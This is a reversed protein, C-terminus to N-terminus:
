WNESWFPIKSLPGFSKPLSALTLNSESSITYFIYTPLDHLRNENSYLNQFTNSKKTEKKLIGNSATSIAFADKM